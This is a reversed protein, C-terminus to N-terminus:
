AKAPLHARLLKLYDSRLENQVYLPQGTLKDYVWRLEDSIYHAKDLTQQDLSVAKISGIEMVQEEREDDAVPSLVIEAWLYAHECAPCEWLGLLRIPEGEEPEQITLYGAGPPGNDILHFRDGVQLRLPPSVDKEKTLIATQLNTSEDAASINGCAPCELPAVFHQYM